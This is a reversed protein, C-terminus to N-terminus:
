CFLYHQKEEARKSVVIQRQYRLWNGHLHNTLYPTLLKAAPGGGWMVNVFKGQLPPLPTNRFCLSYWLVSSRYKLLPQQTTTLLCGTLDLMESMWCWNPNLIDM